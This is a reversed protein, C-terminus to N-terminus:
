HWGRNARSSASDPLWHTAMWSQVQCFSLCCFCCSLFWSGELQFKINPAIFFFIGYISFSLSMRGTCNRLLRLGYIQSKLAQLHRRIHRTCIYYSHILLDQFFVCEQNEAQRVYLIRERATIKFARWWQQQQPSCDKRM